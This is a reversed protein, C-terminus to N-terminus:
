SSIPGTRRPSADALRQHRQVDDPHHEAAGGPHREGAHLVRSHRRGAFYTGARYPYAWQVYPQTNNASRYARLSGSTSTDNVLTRAGTYSNAFLELSAPGTAQFYVLRFPYYGANTIGFGGTTDAAGRTGDFVAMQYPFEEYPNPSTTLRFGDDSNVGLSYYGATLYLYTIAQLAFNNTSGSPGPIGPFLVDGPFDGATAPAAINYNITNAQAFNYSGDTNTAAKNPYPNGYPDVFQGALMTEANAITYPVSQSTQFVKQLYGPKTTDVASASIAYSAPITAYTAASFTFQNTQSVPSVENDAFWVMATNASGSAWTRKYQVTTVGGTQTISPTVAVGNVRLNITNTNVKVGVGDQM